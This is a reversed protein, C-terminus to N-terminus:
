NVETEKKEEYLKYDFSKDPYHYDSKAILELRSVNTGRHKLRNLIIINEAMKKMFTFSMNDFYVNDKLLKISKEDLEFEVSEIPSYRQIRRNSEETHPITIKEIYYIELFTKM